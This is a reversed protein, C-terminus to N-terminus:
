NFSTFCSSITEIFTEDVTITDVFMDGLGRTLIVRISYDINKKDKQLISMYQDLNVNPFETTSWIDSLTQRVRQRLSDPILGLQVSIANAIDIGYAVAIGHPIAFNSYSEIAHGFSHGYNFINRPGEDFEDIEIMKKKIDLSARILSTLTPEKKLADKLHTEFFTFSEEGEILFYHAMEGLGSRIERDDLTQLFQSDSIILSPPYFGGIQNKYSDFNISTKSGICSDCQSLLNTPVFIWGVGRYLISAIFATIDQTIGGGIAILRHNKKFGWEILNQILPRVGDYSKGKETPEIEIVRMKGVLSSLSQGYLNRINRDIVFVDGDKIVKKLESIYDDTFLVKYNNRYSTINMSNGMIIESM